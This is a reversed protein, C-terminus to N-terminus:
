QITYNPLKICKQKVGYLLQNNADDYCTTFSEDFTEFNLEDDFHIVSQYNDHGWKPVGSNGEPNVFKYNTLGKVKPGIKIIQKILDQICTHEWCILVNKGTFYLNEFVNEITIKTDSQQGYIFVPISLLWSTLTVTQQVHMSEYSTMTIIASIGYGKNNLEEILDPIYTSRLIGNCNLFPQVGTKEGHRIIFINEPGKNTSNKFFASGLSKNLVDNKVRKEKYSEHISYIINDENTKLCGNTNCKNSTNKIKKKNSKEIVTYIYYLIIIVLCIVIITTLQININKDLFM